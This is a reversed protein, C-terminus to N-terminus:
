RKRSKKPAPSEESPAGYRKEMADLGEALALRIVQARNIEWLAFEPRASLVPVLADVRDLLAQPLRMSLAADNPMPEELDPCPLEGALMDATREALRPNRALHDKLKEITAKIRRERALDVVEEEGATM